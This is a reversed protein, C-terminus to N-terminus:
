PSVRTITLIAEHKVPDYVDVHVAYDMTGGNNMRMGEPFADSCREMSFTDGGVYLDNCHLMAFITQPTPHCIRFRDSGDRPILDLLHWFRSFEPLYPEVGNTNYNACWLETGHYFDPSELVRLIDEYTFAPSYDRTGKSNCVAEVLRADVHLIRVGGDFGTGSDTVSAIETSIFPWDFGSAGVPALVELLLYEDFPTGNWGNSTPILVADPCDGSCGIRLTIENIDPTIVYPTTWGCLFRSYANWGAFDDEQMDFGGLPSVFEDNYPYSDYYDEVGFGHSLEHILIRPGTSQSAPEAPRCVSDYAMRVFRFMTPNNPDPKMQAYSMAGGYLYYQEGDGVTKNPDEGSLFVVMDVQGNNDKDAARTREPHSKRIQDFAKFLLDYYTNQVYDYGQKSTMGTDYCCYQVDFDTKGYSAYKFYTSISRFSESQPYDGEFMDRLKAEDYAYGDTFGVFVVLLGNTGVSRFAPLRIPEATLLPSVPEPESLSYGCLTVAGSPAPQTFDWQEGTSANYWGSFHKGTEPAVPLDILPEGDRVYEPPLEVGDIQYRVLHWGENKLNGCLIWKGDQKFFLQTTNECYFFDGEEGLTETPTGADRYVDRGKAREIWEDMTPAPTPSPAETPQEPEATAEAPVVEDPSEIPQQAVVPTEAQPSGAPEKAGCSICAFLMILCVSLCIVKVFPRIRNM